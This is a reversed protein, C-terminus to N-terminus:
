LTAVINAADNPKSTREAGGHEAATGAGTRSSTPATEDLPGSELVPSADISDADMMAALRQLNALIMTQEWDELRVLEARVTDQLPSPAAALLAEGAPTVTVTVSRRDYGSRARDVLGRKVLRDLIGTVTPSSLHVARALAGTSAAAGLRAAAKLVALQPGTLGHEMALKRSHLDVARMIRRIAAVIQDEIALSASM